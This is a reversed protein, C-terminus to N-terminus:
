EYFQNQFGASGAQNCFKWPEPGTHGSRTWWHGLKPVEGFSVALLSEVTWKTILERIAEQTMVLEPLPATRLFFIARTNGPNHEKSFSKM